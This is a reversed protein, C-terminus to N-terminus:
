AIGRRILRGRPATFDVEIGRVLTRRVAGSVVKGQHYPTMPNKHSASADVLYADGEAFIALDADYGTPWGSRRACAWGPRPSPQWGTSSRSSASGAAAPKPGSWPCRSSSRPSAAGPWRSTGHELDKLELTSPSHDSAIYDITGDLLGEWLRERNGIEPDAPLM